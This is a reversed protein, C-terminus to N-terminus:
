SPLRPLGYSSDIKWGLKEKGKRDYHRHALIIACLRETSM